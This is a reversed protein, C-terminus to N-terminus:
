PSGSTGAGETEEDNFTDIPCRYIQSMVCQRVRTRDVLYVRALDRVLSWDLGRVRARKVM